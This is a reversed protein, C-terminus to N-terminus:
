PSCKVVYSRCIKAFTVLSMVQLKQVSAIMLSVCSKKKNDDTVRMIEEQKSSLSAVSSEVKLIATHQLMLIDNAKKSEEIATKRAGMLEGTLRDIEGHLFELMTSNCVCEPIDNSHVKVVKQGRYSIPSVLMSLIAVAILVAWYNTSAKEKMWAVEGNGQDFDSTRGPTLQLDLDLPELIEETGDGEKEPSSDKKTKRKPTTIPSKARRPTGTRSRYSM